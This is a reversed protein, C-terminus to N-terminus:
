RPPSRDRRDFGAPRGDRAPPRGRRQPQGPQRKRLISYVRSNAVLGGLAIGLMTVGEIPRPTPSASRRKSCSGAAVVFLALANVFAALVQARHYGYSRRPNTPRMTLRVATWALGTRRHRDAHPRRRRAPRALRLDPRGRGRAAMFTGHYCAGLRAPPEGFRAPPFHRSPRELAIPPRSPGRPLPANISGSPGASPPRVFWLRLAKRGHNWTSARGRGRHGVNGDDYGDAVFVLVHQREGALDM